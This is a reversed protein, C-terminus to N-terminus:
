QLLRYLGLNHSEIVERIENGELWSILSRGGHGGQQKEFMINM